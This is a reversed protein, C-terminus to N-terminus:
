NLKTKLTAGQNPKFANVAGILGIKEKRIIFMSHPSKSDDSDGSSSDTDKNSKSADNKSASLLKQIFKSSSSIKSKNLNMSLRLLKSPSEQDIM